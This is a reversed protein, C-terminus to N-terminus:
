TRPQRQAIGRAIKDSPSMAAVDAAQGASRAGGGAPVQEAALQGRVGEAIRQYARKAAALSARLEDATSGVILEPVADPNAAILAERALALAAASEGGTAGEGEPLPNSHPLAGSAEGQGVVEDAM